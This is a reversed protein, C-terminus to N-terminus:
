ADVHMEGMVDDAALGVGGSRKRIWWEVHELVVASM